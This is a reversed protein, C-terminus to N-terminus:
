VIIVIASNQNSSDSSSDEEHNDCELVELEWKRIGFRHLLNSFENLESTCFNKHICDKCSIVKELTDASCDLLNESDEDKIDKNSKEEYDVCDRVILIFKKIGLTELFDTVNNLDNQCNILNRCDTCPTTEGEDKSQFVTKLKFKM